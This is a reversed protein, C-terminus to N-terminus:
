EETENTNGKNINKLWKVGLSSISIALLGLIFSNAIIDLIDSMKYSYIFLSSTLISLLCMSLQFLEVSRVRYLFYNGVLWLLYLIITYYYEDYIISSLLLVTMIINNVLNLLKPIITNDSKITFITMILSNIVALITFGSYFNLTVFGFGFFTKYYLILTINLLAIELIWLPTINQTLVIPLILLGWILFLQYTDAGSHYVQGILAIHAGVLITFGCSLIRNKISKIDGIISFIFTLLLLSNAISFKHWKNLSSWNYAFFFVAGIVVSLIGYNLLVLNIFYRIKKSM